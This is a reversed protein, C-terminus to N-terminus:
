YCKPPLKSLLITVCNYQASRSDTAFMEAVKEVSISLERQIKMKTLGDFSEEKMVSKLQTKLLLKLGKFQREPSSTIVPLTAFIEFLIKPYDTTTRM